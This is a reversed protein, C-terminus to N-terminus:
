IANYYNHSILRNDGDNYLLMCQPDNQFCIKQEKLLNSDKDSM